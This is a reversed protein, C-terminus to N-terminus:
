SADACTLSSVRPADSPAALPTQLDTKQAPRIPQNTSSAIVKAAVSTSEILAPSVNAIPEDISTKPVESSEHANLSTSRIEVIPCSKQPMAHRVLEERM